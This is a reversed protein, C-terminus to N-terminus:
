CGSGGQIASGVRSVEKAPYITSTVEVIVGFNGGAGRIGRLERSSATVLEGKANVIKAGVIQDVGLGYASSTPGYGGLTAWGVWGVWGVNGTPLTLKEQWLKDLLAGSLVGGGIRATKRDNSVAVHDILRMDISLAGDVISRNQCDHGGTRVAFPLKHAICLRVISAVQEATAPRAVGSPRAGGAFYVKRVHDFDPSSPSVYQVGIDQM